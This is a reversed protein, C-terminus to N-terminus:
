HRLVFRSSSSEAVYPPLHLSALEGAKVDATAQRFAAEMQERSEYKAAFPHLRYQNGGREAAEPRLVINIECLSALLNSVGQQSIQYEQAMEKQRVPLHGGLESRFMLYQLFKVAAGSVPLAWIRESVLPSMVEM